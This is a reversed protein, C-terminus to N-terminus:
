PTVLNPLFPSRKMCALPRTSGASSGRFLFRSKHPPEQPRTASVPQRTTCCSLQKGTNIKNSAHQFDERSSCYQLTQQNQKRMQQKFGKSCSLIPCSDSSMKKHFVLPGSPPSSPKLPTILSTERAESRILFYSMKLKM